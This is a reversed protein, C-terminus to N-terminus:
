NVYYSNYIMLNYFASEFQETRRRPRRGAMDEINIYVGGAPNEVSLDRCTNRGTDFFKPLFAQICLFGATVIYVLPLVESV